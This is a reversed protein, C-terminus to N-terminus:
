RRGGKRAFVSQHRASNASFRTQRNNDRQNLAFPRASGGASQVLDPPLDRPHETGKKFGRRATSLAERHELGTALAADILAQVVRSEDLGLRELQGLGYAARALANNRQGVSASQVELVARALAAEAYARERDRTTPRQWRPRPDPHEPDLAALGHCALLRVEEPSLLYGEGDAPRYATLLVGKELLDPPPTEVEFGELELAARAQQLLALQISIYKKQQM